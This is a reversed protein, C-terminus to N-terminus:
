RTRAGSVGTGGRGAGAAVGLGTGVRGPGVRGAGALGPGASGTGEGGEDGSPVAAEAGGPRDGEDRGVARGPVGTGLAAVGSGPPFGEGEFARRCADAGGGAPASREAVATGLAGRDPRAAAGFLTDPRQPARKASM